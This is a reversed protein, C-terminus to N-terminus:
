PIPIFIYFFGELVVIINRRPHWHTLYVVPTSCLTARNRLEAFRELDPSYDRYVLISILRM